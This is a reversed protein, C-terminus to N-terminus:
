DWPQQKSLPCLHPEQQSQGCFLSQVSNCQDTVLEFKKTIAVQRHYACDYQVWAPGEFDQYYRLITSQYAMMEPVKSPYIASLAGM